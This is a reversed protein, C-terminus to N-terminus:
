RIVELYKTGSPQSPPSTLDSLCGSLGVFMKHSYKGNSSLLGNLSFTHTHVVFPEKAPNVGAWMLWKELRWVLRLEHGRWIEAADFGTQRRCSDHVVHFIRRFVSQSLSQSLCPSPTLKLLPLFLLISYYLSFLLSPFLLLASAAQLSCFAHKSSQVHLSHLACCPAFLYACVCSKSQKSSNEPLHPSSM